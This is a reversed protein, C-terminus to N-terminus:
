GDWGERFIVTKTRRNIQTTKPLTRRATKALGKTVYAWNRSFSKQAVKSPTETLPIYRPEDGAVGLLLAGDILNKLTGVM